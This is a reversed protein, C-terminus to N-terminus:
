ECEADSGLLAFMAMSDGFYTSNKEDMGKKETICSVKYIIGFFKLSNEMAGSTDSQLSMSNHELDIWVPAFPFSALTKYGNLQQQITANPHLRDWLSWFLPIRLADYSFYPKKTDLFFKNDKFAIWDPHLQLQGFRQALILKSETIMRKWLIADDVRAFTDFIFPIYYSPNLLFTNDHVFGYKGPLLLLRDGSSLILHRKIAELHTIAKELQDPHKFVKSAKIRAYAIWLDGDTANNSDLIKWEHTNSKGWKWPYLGESNRPLNNELWHEVSLYTTEDNMAVAFFLTYGIAESHTIAENERDIVRGDKQLYREKFLEWTIANLSPSLILIAILLFFVKSM